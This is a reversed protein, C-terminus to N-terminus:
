VSPGRARIQHVCRGRGYPERWAKVCGGVPVTDWLPGVFVRLVLPAEQPAQSSEEMKDPRGVRRSGHTRGAHCMEKHRADQWIGTPVHRAGDRRTQTRAGLGPAPRLVASDIVLCGHRAMVRFDGAEMSIYGGMTRIGGRISKGMAGMFASDDGIRRRTMAM